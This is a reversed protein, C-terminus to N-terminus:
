AAIRAIASVKALCISPAQILALTGTTKDTKCNSLMLIAYAFHTEAFPM